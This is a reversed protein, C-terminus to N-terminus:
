AGKVEQVAGGLQLMQYCLILENLGLRTDAPDHPLLGRVFCQVDAGSICLIDRKKHNNTFM